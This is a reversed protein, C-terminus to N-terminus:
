YSVYCESSCYSIKNEGAETKDIYWLVKSTLNWTHGTDGKESVQKWTYKTYFGINLLAVNFSSFTFFFSKLHMNAINAYKMFAEHM